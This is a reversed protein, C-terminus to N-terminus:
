GISDTLQRGGVLHLHLHQVLQGGEAGCNVVLRYGREAIGEQEAISKACLVMRGILEVDAEALERVSSVHKRPVILVHTPAVPHVDRFAVIESDQYVLDGPIEGAIIRCFICGDTM